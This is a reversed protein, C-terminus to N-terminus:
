GHNLWEIAQNWIDRLEAHSFTKTRIQSMIGREVGPLHFGLMIATRLISAPKSLYLCKAFNDILHAEKLSRFCVNVLVGDMFSVQGIVTEEGRQAGIIAAAWLLDRRSVYEKGVWIGSVPLMKILWFPLMCHIGGKKLFISAPEATKLM